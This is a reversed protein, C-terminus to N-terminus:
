RKWKRRKAQKRLAREEETTEPKRIRDQETVADDGAYRPTITM